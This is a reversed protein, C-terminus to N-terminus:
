EVDVIELEEGKSTRAKGRKKIRARPHADLVWVGDEKFRLQTETPRGRGGAFKRGMLFFVGDIDHDESLVHIRQGPRWLQGDATRHGKVTVVLDMGELRADSLAKRARAQANALSEVDSDVIILPRYVSVASDRVHAKIANQGANLATGHAQGLVTIDSYRSSMSRVRRCSKINNGQGSRRSILSTVPPTTYDPGGVVLTGDPEMWPWLGAAEAANTLTQWATEGPQISVRDRVRTDAADIRVRSIGLPKVVGAVVEALTVQKATFIPSSCDTLLGALDRGELSFSLVGRGSEEVIDDVRGVLVQEGDVRLDVLAAEAVSPFRGGVAGFELSWADAPIRLDSDIEYREWTSHARGGILLSVVHDDPMPM